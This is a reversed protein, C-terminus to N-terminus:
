MGLFVECFERIVGDGGRKGLVHDVEALVRPHADAPAISYGCIRLAGLDNIDNCIFIVRELEINRTNCLDMLVSKKDSVGHWVEVRLKEARRAVVKNRETSLIVLPFRDWLFDIALGDSRSCVVSEIGNEDVYVRNDTFVGDFDFAILEPCFPLTKREAQRTM